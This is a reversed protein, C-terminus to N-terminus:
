SPKWKMCVDLLQGAHVRYKFCSEITQWEAARSREQQRVEREFAFTRWNIDSMKGAM